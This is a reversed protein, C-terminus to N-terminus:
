KVEIVLWSNWNRTKNLTEMDHKDECTPIYCMGSDSRWRHVHIITEGCTGDRHKQHVHRAKIVGYCYPCEHDVQGNNIIIDTLLVIDPNGLM